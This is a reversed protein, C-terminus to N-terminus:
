AVEKLLRFFIIKNRALMSLRWPTSNDTDIKEQMVEQLFLKSQLMGTNTIHNSGTDLVLANAGSAIITGANNLVM